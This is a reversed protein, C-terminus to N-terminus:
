TLAQRWDPLLLLKCEVADRTFVRECIAAVHWTVRRCAAFIYVVTACRKKEELAKESLATPSLHLDHNCPPSAERTQPEFM